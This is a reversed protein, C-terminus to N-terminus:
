IFLPVSMFNLFLGMCMSLQNEVSIGHYKLPFHFIMKVFTAPIVLYEVSLFFHVRVGVEFWVCVCVSISKFYVTPMFMFAVVFSRPSFM